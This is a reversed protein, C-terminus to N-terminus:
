FDIQYLLGNGNAQSSAIVLDQGTQCDLVDGARIERGVATPFAAGNLTPSCSGDVIVDDFWDLGSDARVVRLSPGEPDRAFALEPPPTTSDGDSLIRVAVFIGAALLATIGVLLIVGIVSGEAPDDLGRMGQM